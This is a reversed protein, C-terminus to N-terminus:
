LFHSLGWGKFEEVAPDVVYKEYTAAACNEGGEFCPFNKETFSHVTAWSCMSEIGLQNEGKVLRM